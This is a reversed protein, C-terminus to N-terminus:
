QDFAEVIPLVEDAAIFLCRQQALKLHDVERGEAKVAPGAVALRLAVAPPVVEVVCAETRGFGNRVPQLRQAPSRRLQCAVLDSMREDCTVVRPGADAPM